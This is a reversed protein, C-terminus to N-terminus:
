IFYSSLDQSYAVNPPVITFINLYQLKFSSLYAVLHYVIVVIIKLVLKLLDM